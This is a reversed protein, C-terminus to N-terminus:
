WFFMHKKRSLARIPNWGIESFFGLKIEASLFSNRFFVLKKWSIFFMKGAIDKQKNKEDGENMKKMYILLKKM